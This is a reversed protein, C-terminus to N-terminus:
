TNVNWNRVKEKFLLFLINTTKEVEYTSSAEM